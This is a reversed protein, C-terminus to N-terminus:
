KFFGEKTKTAFEYNDNDIYGKLNNVVSVLAAQHMWIEERRETKTSRAWEETLARSYDAVATSFADDDLLDSALQGQISM